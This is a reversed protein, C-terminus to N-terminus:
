RTEFLAEVFMEPDFPRLDEIGEGVGVYRVPLKLEAAIAVAMGGKATGDLKTLIIGDVDVADKFLRAQVLANQGTTADLVLLTENPAGAIERGLVRYIKKMEEMLNVKTHLRGATDIILLDTERAVAAKAADFVVAAPDAGESHRVVAVGTREGWVALQDAAAARFTDAAGLIVKKGQQKFQHALKGITTTKGVGNVGIVMMVYPKHEELSVEANSGALISLIEDRLAKRVQEPQQMEGRTLRERLAAVLTQTTRVGFDASVLVEEIEEITDADVKAGAGLIADLRGFLSQHTKALGKRMRDYVSVPGQESEEAEPAAAGEEPTITEKHKQAVAAKGAETKRRGTRLLRWLCLVLLLALVAYAIAYATWLSQEPPVGWRELVSAFAVFQGSLWVIFNQWTLEAQELLQLIFAYTKDTISNNEMSLSEIALLM